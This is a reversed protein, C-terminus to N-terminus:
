SSSQEVAMVKRVLEAVSLVKLKRMMNSRHKEVTKISLNLIRAIVKNATGATVLDMVERERVSLTDLLARFIASEREAQDRKRRATIDQGVSQIEVLRGDEDFLAHDLWLQWAESGDPQTVCIEHSSVSNQRTREAAEKALSQCTNPSIMHPLVTGILEDHSQGLYQCYAPNVFTLQGDPQWRVIFETQSDVVSKYREKARNLEATREAVRLELLEKAAVLEQENARQQTIDHCIGENMVVVGREDCVPVDRIELLRESGDAHNVVCEYAHNPGPDGFRQRELDEIGRNVDASLDVFNRWNKGIVVEAPYGLIETVSPSVHVIVGQPDTGFFFYGDHLGNFLEQYTNRQAEVTELNTMRSLNRSKSQSLIREPLGGSSEDSHSEDSHSEDSHSEDVQEAVVSDALERRLHFLEHELHAIKAKLQAATKRSTAPM